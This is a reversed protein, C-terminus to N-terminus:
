TAYGFGTLRDALPYRLGDELTADVHRLILLQLAGREHIQILIKKPKVPQRLWNIKM